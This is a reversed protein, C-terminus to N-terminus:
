NPLAGFITALWCVPLWVSTPPIKQLPQLLVNFPPTNQLSQVEFNGYSGGFKDEV